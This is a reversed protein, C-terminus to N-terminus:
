QERKEGTWEQCGSPIGAREDFCEEDYNVRVGESPRRKRVSGKACRSRSPGLFSLRLRMDAPFLTQCANAHRRADKKMTMSLRSSSQVDRLYLNTTSVTSERAM